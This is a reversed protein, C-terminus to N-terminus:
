KIVAFKGMQTAGDPTEVVYLYLGYAIEQGNYTQMNWFEWGQTENKHHLTVVKDGTLTFIRITCENPLNRFQIHRIHPNRDWEASVIYPNPVVRVKRLEEKQVPEELKYRSTEIVFVDRDHAFPKTTVIRLVDGTKPPIKQVVTTDVITTDVGNITTDIQTITTDPIGELKLTFTSRVRTGVKERIVFADGSTWTNKMDPTTDTTAPFSLFDLKEGTTADFIEFPVRILPPVFVSTDGKDTFRVEYDHPNSFGSASYTWNCKSSDGTVTTWGSSDPLLEIRSYGKVTLQLGDFFLGEEGNTQEAGKLAWIKKTADWVNYLFKGRTTTDDFSVEYTDGTVANPDIIKAKVTGNGLTGEKPKVTLTPPEYNAPDPGPVVEVLNPTADPNTGKATELANLLPWHDPNFEEEARVGHDYATVVYWYTVGDKVTSDTWSHQLGTDNGLNFYPNQPDPGKIGDVVDFQAVPIFGVVNGEYNRIETGWNNNVPDSTTRYIKYGEFDQYGTMIDISSEAVRDWYLTVRGKSRVATVHPAKPPDAGQYHLNYMFQATRANFKLDNLNDGMIMAFSFTTTDGAALDFPGSSMIFVCDLGNPFMTKIGEPSDYHPDLNGQPDPWFYADSEEPTLGSTDGSIVKYQILEQRKSDIVGPRNEWQFWHWDTIGLQEGTKPNNPTELLKIATYVKWADPDSVGSFDGTGWRYDYIFAMNYAYTSDTEPDYEDKIFSMWDMRDNVTTKLNYEPTDVDLYFGVYMGHYNYSSRNIIKMPFFLIDEAYSRGYSYGSIDLQVGIPYGQFTDNDSSAYPINQDNVDFDTISFFIDKDSTFKGPLVEGTKPDVAWPGPWFRNGNADKPWSKKITSTAVLPVSSISTGKVVDGVTADGSHLKGLSGARPGWDNAVFRESVTPGVSKRDGTTPDIRKPTWSSDEPIGIMMSLDPIYSWGKYFGAPVSPRYDWTGLRGDNFVANQLKGADLIGAAIDINKQAKALRKTKEAKKDRALGPAALALSILLVGALLVLLSKKEIKMRSGGNKM